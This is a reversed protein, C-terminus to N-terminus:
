ILTENESCGLGHLICADLARRFFYKTSLSESLTWISSETSSKDHEQIECTDNM